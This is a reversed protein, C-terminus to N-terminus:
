DGGPLVDLARDFASDRGHEFEEDTFVPESLDPPIGPGDFTRGDRTRFEENPVGLRWGNPLARDLVDSFVGQTPAGIRVTRGPRDLLAQTFSEGASVTSGGTLVAVPGAYRPVGPAPVVYQPQARTFHGPDDPDDRAAKAYAFHTRDTLRSALRLGLGDAGGGNVRLDVVLGRLRATRDATLVSDLARDLAAREAAYRGDPHEGDSYGIFGSVRLYGRDGPLDAYSVRGNAYETLGGGDLDHEEIHRKVRADLEASPATTGSRTEGFFRDAGDTLSVHADHLPALMERFVAFLEDDTTGADVTPRHRDRVAQWDVGKAAFFPYNEHFTQWFVDFTAVPDDPADGTCAAPLGGRVRAMDQHGPSGDTSLRAGTGPGTNPGSGSRVTLRRGDAMTYAAWGPGRATRRATEGAVCSVSTTQYRRLVDGAVSVLSGHGDTRWIGDLGEGANAGTGPRPGSEARGGPLEGNGAAVAAPLLAGGSLALLVGGAVVAPKRFLM